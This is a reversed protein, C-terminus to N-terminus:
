LTQKVALKVDDHNVTKRKATAALDVATNGIDLAIEEIVELLEDIADSSVRLGTNKLIREIQVKPIESMIVGGYYTKSM